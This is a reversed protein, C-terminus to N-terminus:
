HSPKLSANDFNIKAKNKNNTCTAGFNAIAIFQREEGKFSFNILDRMM